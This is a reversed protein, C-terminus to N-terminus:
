NKESTSAYKKSLEMSIASQEFKIRGAGTELIVTNEGEVIDVIKGHMGSSTVVKSGRTLSSQFLKEQKQRKMQPRIMFFYIVAFMLIFPLFATIGGSAQLFITLFKM